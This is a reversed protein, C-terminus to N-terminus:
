DIESEKYHIGYEDIHYVDLVRVQKSGQHIYTVICCEWHDKYEDIYISVENYGNLSYKFGVNGLNIRKATNFLEQIISKIDDPIEIQPKNM